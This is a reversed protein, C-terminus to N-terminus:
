QSQHCRSWRAVHSLSPLRESVQPDTKAASCAPLVPPDNGGHATASSRQRFQPLECALCIRMLWREALRNMISADAPRQRRAGDSLVPPGASSSMAFLGADAAEHPVQSCSVWHGGGFDRHCCHHTATATRRRQLQHVQRVLCELCMRTLWREALKNVISANAPRQRRAGDSLVPSGASGSTAFLRADVM